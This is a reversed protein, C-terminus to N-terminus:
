DSALVRWAAFAILVLALGAFHATETLQLPWFHSVLQYTAHFVAHTLSPAAPKVAGGVFDGGFVIRHGHVTGVPSM